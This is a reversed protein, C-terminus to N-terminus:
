NKIVKFISEGKSHIIRVMYIGDTLMETSFTYRKSNIDSNLLLKGDPGYIRIAQMNCGSIINLQNYFPNPSININADEYNQEISVNLVSILSRDSNCGNQDVHTAGYTGNQNAIIFGSSSSLHNDGFYWTNDPYSSYITDPAVFTLIPAAPKPLVQVDFTYTGIANGHINYATLSYSTSEGPAVYISDSTEGTSWIVSTAGIASLLITDGECVATDSQTTILHDSYHIQISDAAVVQNTALDIMELILEHNETVTDTYILPSNIQIDNKYWKYGLNANSKLQIPTFRWAENYASWAATNRGPPVVAVTKSHDMLGLVSNGQNWTTCTPKSKIHIEIENSGEHLIVISSFYLSTCDYFSISDFCVFFNREPAIGFSGFKIEGHHTRDVDTYPTYISSKYYSSYPLPASFSWACFQNELTTDFSLIVNGGVVLKKYEIGFFDFGFGIDIKSSFLDDNNIINGIVFNNLFNEITDNYSIPEFQYDAQQIIVQPSINFVSNYVITTDNGINVTTQSYSFTFFAFHAILLIIKKM